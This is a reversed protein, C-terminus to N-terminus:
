YMRISIVYYLLAIFMFISTLKKFANKNVIKVKTPDHYIIGICIGGLLLFVQSISLFLYFM